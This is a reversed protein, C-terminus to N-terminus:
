PVTTLLGRKLSLLYPISLAIAMSGDGAATLVIMPPSPTLHANTALFVVACVKSVITLIILHHYIHINRLPFLYFLGALFLFIGSQRVFFPDAIPQGLLFRYFGGTFFYIIIGLVVSHVGVCLVVIKLFKVEGHLTDSRQTM